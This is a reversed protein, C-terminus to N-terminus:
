GFLTKNQRKVRYKMQPSIIIQKHIYTKLDDKNDDRSPIHYKINVIALSPM